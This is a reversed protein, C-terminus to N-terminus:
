ELELLQVEEPIGKGCHKKARKKLEEVSSRRWGQQANQPKVVHVAEKEEARRLTRETEQAKERIPHALTM